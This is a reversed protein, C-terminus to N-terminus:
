RSEIDLFCLLLVFKLFIKFPYNMRDNIVWGWTVFWSIKSSIRSSESGAYVAICSVRELGLFTTFVNNFYDM